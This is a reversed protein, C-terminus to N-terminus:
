TFYLGPLEINNTKEYEHIEKSMQKNTKPKYTNNHKTSLRLKYKKMFLKYTKRSIARSM